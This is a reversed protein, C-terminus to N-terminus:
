PGIYLGKRRGGDIVRIIAIAQTMRAKDINDPMVAPLSVILSRSVFFLSIECPM